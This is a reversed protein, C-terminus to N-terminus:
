EVRFEIGIVGYQAEQHPSYHRRVGALLEQLFDTNYKGITRPDLFLSQFSDARHLAIIVADIRQDPDDDNIFVLSDGALYRRRKGDYLRNEILKRGTRILEFSRSNLHLEHTAM